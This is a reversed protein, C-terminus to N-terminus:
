LAASVMWNIKYCAKMLPSDHCCAVVISLSLSLVTDGNLVDDNSVGNQRRKPFGEHLFLATKKFM